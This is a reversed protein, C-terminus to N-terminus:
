GEGVRGCEEDTLKSAPPLLSSVEGRVCIDYCKEPPNRRYVTNEKSHPGGRRAVSWLATGVPKVTRGQPPGILGSSDPCVKRSPARSDFERPARPPSFAPPPFSRSFAPFGGGRLSSWGPAGPNPARRPPM